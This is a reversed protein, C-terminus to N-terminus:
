NSSYTRSFKRSPGQAWLMRSPAVAKGPFAKPLVLYIYIYINHIYLYISIYIYMINCDNGRRCQKERTQINHMRFFLKGFRHGHLNDRGRLQLHSGERSAPPIGGFQPRKSTPHFINTKAQELRIRLAALTVTSTTFFCRNFLCTNLLWIFAKLWDSIRKSHKRLIQHPQKKPAKQWTMMEKFFSCATEPLM